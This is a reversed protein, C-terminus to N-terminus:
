LKKEITACIILLLIKKSLLILENSNNNNNNPQKQLNLPTDGLLFWFFGVTCNNRKIDKSQM